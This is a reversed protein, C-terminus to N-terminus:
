EYISSDPHQQIYQEVKTRIDTPNINLLDKKIQKYHKEGKSGLVDKVNRGNYRFADALATRSNYIDQYAQEPTMGKALRKAYVKRLFWSLDPPNADAARLLRSEPTTGSKDLDHEAVVQKIKEIVDPSLAKGYAKDVFPAALAGHPEGVKNAKATDHIYISGEEIQNLPYGRQVAIEQARRLVRQIHPWQNPGDDKYFPRALKSLDTTM